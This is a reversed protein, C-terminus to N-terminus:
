SGVGCADARYSWNSRNFLWVVCGWGDGSRRWRCKWGLSAIWRNLRELCLLASQLLVGFDALNLKERESRLCLLSDLSNSSRHRPLSSRLMGLNLVLIM